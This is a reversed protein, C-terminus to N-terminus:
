RPKTGEKPYYRVARYEYKDPWPNPTVSDIASKRDRYWNPGTVCWVENSGKNRVQVMWIGTRQNVYKRSLLQNSM